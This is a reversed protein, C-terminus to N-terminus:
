GLCNKLESVRYFYGDEKYPTCGSHFPVPEENYRMTVLVKGDKNRYAGM